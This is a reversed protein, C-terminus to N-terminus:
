ALLPAAGALEALVVSTAGVIDIVLVTEVMGVGVEIGKMQGSSLLMVTLWIISLWNYVKSTCQSM